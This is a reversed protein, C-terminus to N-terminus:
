IGEDGEFEETARAVMQRWAGSEEALLRMAQLSAIFAQQYHQPNNESAAREAHALAETLLADFQDHDLAM